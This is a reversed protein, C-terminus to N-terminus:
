STCYSYLSSLLGAASLNNAHLKTSTLYILSRLCIEIPLGTTGMFKCLPTAGLYPCVKHKAPVFRYQQKLTDVTSYKSAAEIQPSSFLIFIFVQGGNCILDFM